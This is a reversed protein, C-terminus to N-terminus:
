ANKVVWMKAPPQSVNLMLIHNRETVMHTTERPLTLMISLILVSIRELCMLMYCNSSTHMYENQRAKQADTDPM